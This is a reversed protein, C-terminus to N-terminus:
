EEVPTEPQQAPPESSKTEEAPAEEPQNQMKIREVLNQLETKLNEIKKNLGDILANGSKSHATLFTINNEYTALEAKKTEYLRLLSSVRSGGQNADDHQGGKRSRNGSGNRRYTSIGLEKTIKGIVDRFKAYLKDKEKFPVHGTENWENILDHVKEAADKGGEILVAELKEIITKKITLNNQEEKKQDGLQLKKQEFFYNCAANFREWLHNSTKRSTPGVTKWEKQLQVLKATTGNWDNSDKLAEAQECLAKRKGINEAIIRKNEKIQEAKKNFFADCATRFREFIKTNMRKPARGIEKWKRQIEVLTQTVTDWDTYTKLNTTDIKEVEECLAEKQKLNDEEKAKLEEFYQAHRRNVASSATKFRLWLDERLDKAVPGIERFEQHLQQLQYSAHIIDPDDILHEAAECLLTKAELNKKFDYDRLANNEKLLDYYQEVAFQFSKWVENAVQAPVPKIEKWEEQLKRFTDYNRNAEEPNTALAKIQEVIAKKKEYNVEKQQDAAEQIKARNNKVVALKAKFQEELPDLDLVYNEPQGGEKLYQAFAQAREEKLLRYFNQKLLDLEAKESQESHEALAELRVVIGERTDPIEIERQILTQDIELDESEDEKVEPQDDAVNAEPEDEVEKQESAQVDEETVEEVEPAPVPVEEASESVESVNAEIEPNNEAANLQEVSEQDKLEETRDQPVNTM